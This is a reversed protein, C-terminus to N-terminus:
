PRSSTASGSFVPEVSADDGQVLGFAPQLDSTAFGVPTPAVAGKALFKDPILITGRDLEAFHAPDLLWAKFERRSRPM